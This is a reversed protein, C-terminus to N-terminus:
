ILEVFARLRGQIDAIAHRSDRRLEDIDPALDDARKQGQGTADFGRFRETLNAAAQCYVARRYQALKISEGDIEEAPVAALTAHGAAQQELRWARLESNAWAMANVLAERIRIPTVTGDLRMTERAHEIDIDPWFASNVIAAPADETGSGIAIATM